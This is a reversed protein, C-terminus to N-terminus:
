GKSESRESLAPQPGPTQETDDAHCCSMCARSMTCIAVLGRTDTTPLWRVQTRGNVRDGTAELYLGVDLRGSFRASPDSGAAAPVQVPTARGLFM